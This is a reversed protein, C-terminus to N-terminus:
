SAISQGRARLAFARARHVDLSPRVAQAEEIVEPAPALRQLTALASQIDEPDFQSRLEDLDEDSVDILRKILLSRMTASTFPNAGQNVMSVDGRHIDLSTITREDMEDNWNSKAGSFAFSMQDILGARMKTALRHVDPDLPDLSADVYLGHDDESLRLSGGVTRAIPLGEHNILMQVDPNMSLTRQFAGTAITERYWGMDYPTETVSAWGTLNLSGDDAERMELGDAAVRRVERGRLSEAKKKRAELDM